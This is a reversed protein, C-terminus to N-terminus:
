QMHCEAHAYIACTVSRPAVFEILAPSVVAKDILLSPNVTDTDLAEEAVISVKKVHNLDSSRTNTLKSSFVLLSNGLVVSLRVGPAWHRHSSKQRGQGTFPPAQSALGLRYLSDGSLM